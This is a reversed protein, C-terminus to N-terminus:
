VLNVLYQVAIGSLPREKVHEYASASRKSLHGGGKFLSTLGIVRWIKPHSNGVRMFTSASVGGIHEEKTSPALFQIKDMKMWADFVINNEGSTYERTRKSKRKLSHTLSLSLSLTAVVQDLEDAFLPLVFNSYAIM